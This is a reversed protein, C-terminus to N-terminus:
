NQNENTQDEKDLMNKLYNRLNREMRTLLVDNIRDQMTETFRDVADTIRKETDMKAASVAAYMKDELSSKIISHAIAKLTEGVVTQQTVHASVSPGTVMEQLKRNIENSLSSQIVNLRTQMENDLAVRLKKNLFNQAVSARLDTRAQTGEPFLADLAEKTLTLALPTNKHAMDIRWPVALM